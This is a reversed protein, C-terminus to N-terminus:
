DNDSRAISRNTAYAVWRLAARKGRILQAIASRPPFYTYRNIPRVDTLWFRKWEIFESGLDYTHDGRAISDAIARAQVVTGAGESAFAPHFASKTQTVSGRYHNCFCFAAPQDDVFLLNVDVAGAESTTRHSDRYFARYAEKTLMTGEPSTHQWSARSIAECADYLDWRPDTTGTPSTRHRVYTVNGRRALRKEHRQLNNRWKSNHSRCYADWAGHKTLDIVARAYPTEKTAPIGAM